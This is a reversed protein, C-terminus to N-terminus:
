LGIEKALYVRLPCKCFYRYGFSFSNPRFNADEEQCEVFCELGIDSAKCIDEFGSRHCKCDEGCECEQLLEEIRQKQEETLEVM